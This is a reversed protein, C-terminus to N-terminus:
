PVRRGLLLLAVRYTHENRSWGQQAARDYAIMGKEVREEEVQFDDFNLSRGAGFYNFWVWPRKCLRYLLPWSLADFAHDLNPGVVRKQEWLFHRHFIERLLAEDPADGADASQLADHYMACLDAPLDTDAAVSPGHTRVLHVLTYSAAMVDRNIERLAHAFVDFQAMKEAMTERTRFDLLALIQTAYRAGRLYWNAWLAGHGAILAFRCVHDSDKYLALYSQARHPLADANGARVLATQWLPLSEFALAIQDEHNEASVNCM